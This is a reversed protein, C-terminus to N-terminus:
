DKRSEERRAKRGQRSHETKHELGTWWKREELRKCVAIRNRRMGVVERM